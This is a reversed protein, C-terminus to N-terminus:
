WVFFQVFIILFHTHELISKKFLQADQGKNWFMLYGFANLKIKKWFVLDITSHETM